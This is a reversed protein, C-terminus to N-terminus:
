LVSRTAGGGGVQERSHNNLKTTRLPHSGSSHSPALHMISYLNNKLRRLVTPCDLIDTLKRNKKEPQHLMCDKAGGPMVDLLRAVGLTILKSSRGFALFTKTLIKVNTSYFKRSNYRWFRSFKM